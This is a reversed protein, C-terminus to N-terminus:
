TPGMRRAGSYAQELLCTNTAVPCPRRFGASKWAIGLAGLSLNTSVGLRGGISTLVQAGPRGRVRAPRTIRLDFRETFLHGRDCGMPRSMGNQGAARLFIRSVVYLKESQTTCTTSRTGGGVARGVSTTWAEPLRCRTGWSSGVSASSTAVYAVYFRPEPRTDSPIRISKSVADDGVDRQVDPSFSRSRRSVSSLFSSAVDNARAIRRSEANKSGYRPM